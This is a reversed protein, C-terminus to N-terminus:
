LEEEEEVGELYLCLVQVLIEQVSQGTRLVASEVMTCIVIRTNCIELNGFEIVLGGGGATFFILSEGKEIIPPRRYRACISSRLFFVPVTLTEDLTIFLDRERERGHVKRGPINNFRDYSALECSIVLFFIEKVCTGM